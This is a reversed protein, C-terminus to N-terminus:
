AGRVALTPGSGEKLVAYAVGGLLAAGLGTHGRTGLVVLDGSERANSIVPVAGGIEFQFSTESVGDFDFGDMVHEFRSKGAEHMGDVVYTPMASDGYMPGPEVFAPPVSVNLVRLPVGVKKAIDRAKGLAIMSLESLDCPALIRTIGSLPVPQSWVDCELGSFVARQTGGFDLLHEKEHPGLVALDVNRKKAHETIVSSGKGFDIFKTTMGVREGFTREVREAQWNRAGGMIDDRMQLDASPEVAVDRPPPVDIAHVIDIACDFTESIFRAAQLALDGGSKGDDAVLARDYLKM